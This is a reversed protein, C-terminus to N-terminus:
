EGRRGAEQPELPPDAAARAGARHQTATGAVESALRELELVVADRRAELDSIVTEIDARRRNAADLIETAKREAAEVRGAAERDAKSRVRTAYADAESRAEGAHREAAGRIDEAATAAEAQIQEAADNAAVLVQGTKQAVRELERRVLDSRAQDVGGGELWDALRTLYRDVERQEYGRRVVPFTASRIRDISDQDL